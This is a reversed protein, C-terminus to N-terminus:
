LTGREAVYVGDLFKRIDKNHIRCSQHIKACTYSVAEIDNGTVKIENKKEKDATVTVGPLIETTHVEKQGIYNRVEVLGTKVVFEMPFHAHAAKMVFYFGKTVGTIMNTIHSAITRPMANLKGRPFWVTIQLADATKLLDLPVMDFNRKLEGRPGKVTIEQKNVTLTVEAPIHVSVTNKLHMKCFFPLPEESQTQLCQTCQRQVHVAPCQPINNWVM